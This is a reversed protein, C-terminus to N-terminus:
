ETAHHSLHSKADWWFFNTQKNHVPKLLQILSQEKEVRHIAKSSGPLPIVWFNKHQTGERAWSKDNRHQGWRTNLNQCTQGIYLAVNTSKDVAIYIIFNSNCTARATAFTHGNNSTWSKNTYLINCLKCARQTCKVPSQIKNSSIKM